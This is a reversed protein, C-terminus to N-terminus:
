LLLGLALGIAVGIAFPYGYDRILKEVVKSLGDM